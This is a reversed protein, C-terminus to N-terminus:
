LANIDEPETQNGHKIKENELELQHVQKTLDLVDDKGKKIRNDKGRITFSTSISNVLIVLYSLILGCLFSGVIVYFLPIDSIIFTGLNVSVLMANFKSIYALISGIAILAILTLM